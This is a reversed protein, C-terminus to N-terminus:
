LRTTTMATCGPGPAAHCGAPGPWPRRAGCPASPAIQRREKQAAYGQVYLVLRGEPTDELKGDVFELRVGADQFEQVLMLLHLPDRSLRDSNYVFVADVQRQRVAKLMSDLAASEPDDGSRTDPWVFEDKVAYGMGVANGRCREMQTAISTGDEQQTTSVRVYVGANM